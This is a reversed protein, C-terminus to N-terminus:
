VPLRLRQGTRIQSSSLGNAKKLATVSIGHQRAIGSLTEGSRVTHSVRARAPTNRHRISTTAHSKAARPKPAELGAIETSDNRASDAAIAEPTRVKLRMGRTVRASKLRNWRMLDQTSVGHREAISALTESKEVIIATRGETTSYGELTAPRGHDRPPVYATSARPDTAPDIIEPAPAHMSAPVTLLMGRRLPRKRGIGNIRALDQANVSYQRAISQLTERKRVTHKLTLNLTPLREGAQLRKMLAEGKGPPVRLMVMGGSGRAATHLVAPNLTKLEEYSCDAMRAVTRLDVPGKLAVEDFAMPDDLEVSDFGYRAPDRAITLAAMFQPVYDETQRPLKLDWYNTTGQAKIARLVTGEGANYSALALPWDGFIGYLHKLYRAAAVTAKEPDKREDVWQDVTLGFFKGTSKVFQWPGVAASVSRANLNFGSEVFVLNVLDPPLGERQLVSRFLDMYRGSRKLWREFTSRGAGMFFDLWRTVLEHDQPEITGLADIAAANLVSEDAENGPEVQVNPLDQQTADYLASLRTRLDALDARRPTGEDAASASQFVSLASEITRLAAAPDGAQRQRLATEYASRLSTAQDRLSDTTALPLSPTAGEVRGATAPLGLLLALALTKPISARVAMTLESGDALNKKLSTL